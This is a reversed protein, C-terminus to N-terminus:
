NSETDHSVIIAPPGDEPSQATPDCERRVELRDETSLSSTLSCRSNTTGKHRTSLRRNFFGVPPRVPSRMSRFSRKKVLGTEVDLKGDEKCKLTEVTLKLDKAETTGAEVEEVPVEIIDHDIWTLGM